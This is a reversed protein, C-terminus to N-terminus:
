ALPSRRAIEADPLRLYAPHVEQQPGLVTVAALSCHLRACVRHRPCSDPPVLAGLRELEARFKIAGDGVVLPAAGLAALAEGLRDPELVCPALSAPDCRPDSAPKWGAAFLEGRRADLLGLVGGADLDRPGDPAAVGDHRDCAGLALSRLTSIGVLPIGLSRALAQASAIGIRLGTFTGPGIGVAIRDITHFGGGRAALIASLALLYQTHRPRAGAPPDDRAELCLGDNIPASAGGPGAARDLDM